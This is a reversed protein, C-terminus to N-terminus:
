SDLLNWFHSQIKPPVPPEGTTPFPRSLDRALRGHWWSKIKQASFVGVSLDPIFPVEKKESKV